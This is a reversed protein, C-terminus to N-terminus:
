KLAPKKDIGLGVAKGIGRCLLYFFFASWGVFGVVSYADRRDVLTSMWSTLEYFLPLGVATMIVGLLVRGCNM